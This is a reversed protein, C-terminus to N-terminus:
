AGGTWRHALRMAPREVVRYALAAVAVALALGLAAQLLGPLPVRKAVALAPIHLLYLGFCWRGCARLGRWRLVSAWLPLRGVLVALLLMGWFLGWGVFSRHLAAVDGGWGLGTFVAPVSFVLLVLPLVDGFGARRQVAPRPESAHWVWAVLSGALFVLLYDGLRISNLQAEHPPWTWLAGAGLGLVVAARLWASHVGGIWLALPPIVLYYLFEVPVSWYLDRGEQLTLHRWVAAGDLPVGLGRPALAWGVLLVCTYLPYIRLARRLLYGAAYRWGGRGAALAQLWQLTLLFASLVFFLYVGYKGIGVLSVQPLWPLGMASAHSAVVILAALGRMGDLAASDDPSLRRDIPM